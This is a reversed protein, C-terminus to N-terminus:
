GIYERMGLLILSITTAGADVYGLSKEGLFRARGKKAMLEKTHEAGLVAAEAAKNIVDALPAGADCMQRMAAVAPALADVMTRDGVKAGGLLQIRKLGEEFITLFEQCSFDKKEGLKKTGASFLGGLLPGIAGGMTVSLAHGVTEFIEEPYTYVEKELKEKVAQFGRAVTVGHDGDGIYSDLECLRHEESILKNCVGVMMAKIEDAKM